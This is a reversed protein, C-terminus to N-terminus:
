PTIQFPFLDSPHSAVLAIWKISYETTSMGEHKNNALLDSSGTNASLIYNQWDTKKFQLIKSLSWNSGAQPSILMTKNELWFCATWEGANYWLQSILQDTFYSPLKSRHFILLKTMAFSSHSQGPLAIGRFICLSKSCHSLHLCLNLPYLM